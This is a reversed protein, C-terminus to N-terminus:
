NKILDYIADLKEIIEADINEPEVFDILEYYTKKINKSQLGKLNLRKYFEEFIKDLWDDSLKTANWWENELDKLYLPPTIDQIVNQMGQELQQVTLHNYKKTLSTAYKMLVDPKAFYNELERKQWCMVRMRKIDETNKYIKDFIAITKLEPFFEKLSEYKNIATNPVNDDTYDFNAFQLLDYCPHKLKLAFEQLMLRDTVGELFIIHGKTKAQHYYDWGFKNLSHQMANLMKSNPNTNLEFVENEILAIVKSTNAAENLVVESHSAIMIQSNTEDAVKRLIKFTERQRVVELHADPEDLLLVTNPHSYMYALLLLFQRFGTGGASIDYRIKNEIYELQILGTVKILEPKQLDANFLTKINKCLNKWSKEPDYNKHKPQEPYLIDYCINRLVESTRGEGLLRDISGQTLKDESTSLGSTPQLFGFRIGNDNEFINKIENLGSVIKCSFSEENEYYFETKCTWSKGNKEGGIEVELKVRHGDPISKTEKDKWLYQIAEVPSNILNKRNITVTGNQNLTKRQEAQLYSVVGIEWLCLAQFVTTKGGNNPGIIVVSNSFEFSIKDLKKFNNITIKTIM